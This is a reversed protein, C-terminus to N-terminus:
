LGFLRATAPTEMTAANTTCSHSSEIIMPASTPKTTKESDPTTRQFSVSSRNVSPMFIIAVMPKMMIAAAPKASTIFAVPSTCLRTSAETAQIPLLLATPAMSISSTPRSTVMPMPEDNEVTGIMAAIKTGSATCSPKLGSAMTLM